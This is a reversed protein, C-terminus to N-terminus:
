GWWFSVSFSASLSRVYHWWGRPIYLCDGPGLVAEVFKAERFGPFQKEFAKQREVRHSRAEEDVVETEFLEIAEDLDVMSTNSMDVGTEDIGRAHLATNESPGYLRVYKWGVVQALINHHPDTHLPSVTGRPGFWANLMVDEDDDDEEEDGTPHAQEPTVCYCFDPVVVDKRLEPVHGFLEHQALYLTQDAGEGAAVEAGEGREEAELVAAVFEGFRMIRQGWSDDTYKAGVEVPVLRRGGLTRRLLYDPRAWANSDRLAPWQGLAGTIFLPKPGTPALIHNQFRTIPAWPAAELTQDVPHLLEPLPPAAPVFSIPLARGAPLRPPYRHHSHPPSPTNAFRPRKPQPSHDPDIDPSAPTATTDHAYAQELAPELCDSFVRHVLADRFEVGSVILARDLLDIIIEVYHEAMDAVAKKSTSSTATVSSRWEGLLEVTMWLSSEAFLRRWRSEVDRFPVAHIKLHAFELTARPTQPLANLIAQPIKTLPDYEDYPKSLAERLQNHTVDLLSWLDSADQPGKSMRRSISDPSTERPPNLSICYTNQLQHRFYDATTGRLSSPGNASEPIDDVSVDIIECDGSRM